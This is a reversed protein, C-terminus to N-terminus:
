NQFIIISVFFKFVKRGNLGLEHQADEVGDAGEEAVLALEGLKDRRQEQQIGGNEEAEEHVEVHLAVPLGLRRLLLQLLLLLLKRGRGALRVVVVVRRHQRMLQFGVLAFDLCFDTLQQRFTSGPIARLPFLNQM